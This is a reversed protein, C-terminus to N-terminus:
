KWIQIQVRDTLNNLVEFQEYKVTNRWSMRKTIISIYNPRRFLQIAKKLTKKQLHWQIEWVRNLDLIGRWTSNLLSFQLLSRHTDFSYQIDRLHWFTLILQCTSKSVIALLSYCFQLTQSQTFSSDSFHNV